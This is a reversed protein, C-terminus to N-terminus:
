NKKQVNKLIKKEEINKRNEELEEIVEIDSLKNENVEFLEESIKEQWKEADSKWIISSVFSLNKLEEKNLNLLLSNDTFTQHSIYTANGYADCVLVLKDNEPIVVAKYDDGRMMDKDTKGSIVYVGKGINLDKIIKKLLKFRAQNEKELDAETEGSFDPKKDSSPLIVGAFNIVPFDIEDEEIKEGVEQEVLDENEEKQPPEVIIDQIEQKQNDLLAIAIDSPTLYKIEDKNFDLNFRNIIEKKDEVSLDFNSIIKTLEVLRYDNKEQNSDNKVLELFSEIAGFRKQELDKNYENMFNHDSMKEM